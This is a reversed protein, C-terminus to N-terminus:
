TEVKTMRESIWGDIREWWTYLWAILEDEEKPVDSV